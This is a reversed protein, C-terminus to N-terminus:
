WVVLDFGKVVIGAIFGCLDIGEYITQPVVSDKNLLSVKQCVKNIALFLIRQSSVSM